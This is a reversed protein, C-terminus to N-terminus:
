IGTIPETLKKPAVVASQDMVVKANVDALASTKLGSERSKTDSWLQSPIAQPGATRRPNRGQNFANPESAM